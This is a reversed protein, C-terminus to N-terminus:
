ESEIGAHKEGKVYILTSRSHQMPYSNVPIPKAKVRYKRMAIHKFASIAMEWVAVGIILWPYWELPSQPVKHM